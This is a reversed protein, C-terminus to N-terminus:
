YVISFHIYHISISFPIIVAIINGKAWQSFINLDSAIFFLQAWNINQHKNWEKETDRKSAQKSEREGKRDTDRPTKENEIPDFVFYIGRTFPNWKASSHFKYMGDVDAYSPFLKKSITWANLMRAGWIHSIILKKSSEVPLKTIEAM